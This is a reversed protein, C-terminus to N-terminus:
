GSCYTRICMHTLICPGHHPPATYPTHPTHRSDYLSSHARKCKGDVSTYRILLWSQYGAGRSDRGVHHFVGAGILSGAHLVLLLVNLGTCGNLPAVDLMHKSCEGQRLDQQDHRHDDDDVEEDEYDYDSPPTLVEDSPLVLKALLM